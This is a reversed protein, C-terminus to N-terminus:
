GGNKRQYLLKEVKSKQLKKSLIRLVKVKNKLGNRYLSKKKSLFWGKQLLDKLVNLHM